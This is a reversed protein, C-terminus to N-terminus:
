QGRALHDGGPPLMKPDAWGTASVTLWAALLVLPPTWPLLRNIMPGCEGM